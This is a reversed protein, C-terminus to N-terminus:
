RTDHVRVLFRLLFQFGTLLPAPAGEGKVGQGSGTKGAGGGRLGGGGGLGRGGLAAREEPAPFFAPDGRGRNRVCLPGCKCFFSPFDRKPERGVEREPEAKQGM